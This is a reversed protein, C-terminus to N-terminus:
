RILNVDGFLKREKGDEILLVYYVYVGPNLGQGRFTGDWGANPDNLRGGELRFVEAGWRDYV